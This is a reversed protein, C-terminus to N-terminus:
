GKKDEDEEFDSKINELVIEEVTLDAGKHHSFSCGFDDINTDDGAESVQQDEVNKGEEDQINEIEQDDAKKVEQKDKVEPEEQDGVNADVVQNNENEFCAETIRARFFAEGLTSPYSRLFELLQLDTFRAEAQKDEDEEFDSKINELVVEEVTLDAGKHHSLSCGFDDLNTDDDAEPEEQDGVNADVAQNNENEFCAETIRARFFAEGLTSPYSRLFELLQLDTFCAEAALALSFAEDLTKSNSGNALDYFTRIECESRQRGSGHVNVRLVIIKKRHVTVSSYYSRHVISSSNYSKKNKFRFGEALVRLSLVLSVVRKPNYRSLAGSKIHAQETLVYLLLLSLNAGNYRTRAGQKDEDEEFDSKINELVVDEVTLDAGKHHSLSCGFDDINTGDDAESVQQDEVNKGEEDQINEIEQDDAHKVEQKYKVEPEEQDGVNADVGQNNENEFCAETIRARFFAEGKTIGSENAIPIAETNNCYMKIPEKITSVVGLGYIFKKLEDTDTLYGADAYCSVRLEQKIDGRTINQTFAVDLRTCRVVYIILSMASAYPVIQMRKLEAPTSAGQSKSLRLKEQMTINRELYSKVDQLMPINNGEPQEMYVEESLYGNLFATRVDMQCIEYDYFAAIAIFIRIYIHIIDSQPKDIELDDEEHHSSTNISPHMDEEQIIEFDELSGSEEQTILSNDLFEANRAVLVKNEPPYYFCYGMIEKPYGVFICKISISELKDPKTLTDRKVLVECGWVKLYSLKPAQGHWVEYSTKEVKKTPVMNLICAATKFAYDWLVKSSNKSEDHLSGYRTPNQKENGMYLSLDGLKLKRSGRLGKGARIVHLEHDKKTMTQEHLKLIAHLENVTKGMDHMNYNQVFSNFKSQGEEQKCSQFNRVTQLLKHEAQQAFMTKLEQLVEYASLNEMNKHYQGAQALVPALLIPQVLYDLKDEVLQLIPRPNSLSLADVLPVLVMLKTPDDALFSVSPDVMLPCPDVKGILYQPGFAQIYKQQFLYAQSCAQFRILPDFITARRIERGGEPKGFGGGPNSGIGDVWRTGKMMWCGLNAEGIQQEIKDIKEGIPTNSAFEIVNDINMFSSGSSTAKNNVLNTTEGNTGFEGDNDISYLVDFTNLNSVKITPEVGNKNNGSSSANPKKPVPRYEKQPKFGMKPAVPVGRSTQCPKMLTKKECAGTNKTCEEHIHGFVKCSSCRFPKWEYEVRVNCTYHGERTIKPMAMVINDNLEVDAQLEVMVRAYSSRGWSQMCMDSTYSGLMLPTGLKTTIASLGNKSFALVPVGHLKVWVLVTSVDEKLLNENPHRRYRFEPHTRLNGQFETPRVAGWPLPSQYAKRSRQTTISSKSLVM